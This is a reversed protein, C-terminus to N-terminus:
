PFCVKEEYEDVLYISGKRKKCNRKIEAVTNSLEEVNTFNRKKNTLVAISLTMIRFHELNGSRGRIQFNDNLHDVDYFTSITEDFEFIIGKCIEEIEHHPIVAIFDDGGVHGIFYGFHFLHNKLLKAVHLIVKDGQNFGYLDNYAKFSDLDFYLVSYKEMLLVENLKQNILHNGPLNSLPNLYSALEVQIEVFSNLLARISVVGQFIGSKTVIVDDYLDEEERAMALRSVETIPQYFDVILPDTKALLINERGMYLDYGYQTGIKQYFHSRTIHAVPKENECVVIGRLHQNESFLKHVEINKEKPSISPVKKVIYGINRSFVNRKM